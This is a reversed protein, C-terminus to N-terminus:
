LIWFLICDLPFRTCKKAQKNTQKKEKKRKETQLETREDKSENKEENGKKLEQYVKTTKITYSHNYLLKGKLLNVKRM